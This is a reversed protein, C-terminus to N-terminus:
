KTATLAFTNITTGGYNKTANRLQSRRARLFADDYFFSRERSKVESCLGFYPVVGLEVGGSCNLEHLLAPKENLLLQSHNQRQDCVRLLSYKAFACWSTFKKTLKKICFIFPSVLGNWWGTVFYFGVVFSDLVIILCLLSLIIMFSERKRKAANAM